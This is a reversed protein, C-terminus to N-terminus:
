AAAQMAASSEGLAGEDPLSVRRMKLGSMDLIEQQLFEMLPIDISQRLKETDWKPDTGGKADIANNLSWCIMQYTREKYVDVASGEPPPVVYEEVQAITLPSIWFEAGDMEVKKVRTIM